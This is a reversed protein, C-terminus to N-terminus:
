IFMPKVKRMVRWRVCATSLKMVRRTDCGRGCVKWLHWDMSKHVTTGETDRRKTSGVNDKTDGHAIISSEQMQQSALEVIWPFVYMYDGKEEEEKQNHANFKVYWTFLISKKSPSNMFIADAAPWRSAVLTMSQHADLHLPQLSRQPQQRQLQIFTGSRPQSHQSNHPLPVSQFLVHHNLM